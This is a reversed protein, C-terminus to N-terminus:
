CGQLDNDPHVAGFLDILAFEPSCDGFVRSLGRLRGLPGLVPCENLCFGHDLCLGALIHRGCIRLTESNDSSYDNKFNTENLFVFSVRVGCTVVHRSM